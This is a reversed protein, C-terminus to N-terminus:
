FTQDDSRDATQSSRDNHRLELINPVLNGFLHVFQSSLM